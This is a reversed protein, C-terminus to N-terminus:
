RPAAPATVGEKVKPGAAIVEPTCGSEFKKFNDVFRAALEHYRQMYVERSPWSGAPDLVGDPVGPQRLRPEGLAVPERGDEDAVQRHDEVRVEILLAQGLPREERFRQSRM